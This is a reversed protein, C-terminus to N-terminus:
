QEQGRQSRTLAANEIDLIQQYYRYGYELDSAPRGAARWQNLVRKIIGSVGHNSFYEPRGAAAM